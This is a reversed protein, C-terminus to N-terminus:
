RFIDMIPKGLVFGVFFALLAALTILVVKLWENKKKGFKINGSKKIM